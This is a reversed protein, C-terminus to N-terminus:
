CIKLDKLYNKQEESVRFSERAKQVAKKKSKQALAGKQLYRVGEAFFRTLVEALLWAAGMHAYYHESKAGDLLRFIAPLYEAQMYCGLLMIYGFRQSFESGEAVYTEIYPLFAARHKKVEKLTSCFLDCVAWGDVVPLCREIYSIKEEFPMRVMGVAFCKLLRIEFLDDPFPLVAGFVFGKKKNLQKGLARLRPTRGGLSSGAPINVIRENFVRYTEDKMASLEALIETYTKM